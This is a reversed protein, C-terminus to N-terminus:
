VKLSLYRVKDFMFQYIVMYWNSMNKYVLLQYNINSYVYNLITFNTVISYFLLKLKNKVHKLLFIKRIFKTKM